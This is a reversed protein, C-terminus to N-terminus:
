ILSGWVVVRLGRPTRRLQIWLIQKYNLIECLHHSVYENALM